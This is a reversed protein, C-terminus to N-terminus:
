LCSLRLLCPLYVKSSLFLWKIQKKRYHVGDVLALFFMFITNIELDEIIMKQNKKFELGLERKGPTIVLKQMFFVLLLSDIGIYIVFCLFENNYGM